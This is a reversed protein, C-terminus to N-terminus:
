YCTVLPPEPPLLVRVEFALREDDKGCDVPGLNRSLVKVAIEHALEPDDKTLAMFAPQIM